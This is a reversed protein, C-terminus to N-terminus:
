QKGTIALRMRQLAGTILQSEVAHSLSNQSLAVMEQELSVNNGDHGAALATPDPALSPTLDEILRPNASSCARDLEARFSPALDMRRYGPTDLNAINSAIAEHRLAIGDLAKKAVLYNPQSFLADIM